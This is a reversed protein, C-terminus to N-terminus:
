IQTIQQAHRAEQEGLEARLIDLEEDKEFCENRM